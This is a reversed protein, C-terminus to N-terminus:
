HELYESKTLHFVTHYLAKYWESALNLITRYHKPKLSPIDKKVKAEMAAAIIVTLGQKPISPIRGKGVGGKAGKADSQAKAQKAKATDSDPPVSAPRKRGGIATKTDTSGAQRNLKAQNVDKQSPPFVATLTPNVSQGVDLWHDVKDTAVRLTREERAQCTHWLKVETYYSFRQDNERPKDNSMDDDSPRYNPFDEGFQIAHYAKGEDTFSYRAHHLLAMGWFGREKANCSEWYCGMLNNKSPDLGIRGKKEKFAQIVAPVNPLEHPLFDEKYHEFINHKKVRNKLEGQSELDAAEKLLQEALFTPKPVIWREWEPFLRLAKFEVPSNGTKKKQLHDGKRYYAGAGRWAHKYVWIAESSFHVNSPTPKCHKYMKPHCCNPLVQKDRQQTPVVPDDSRAVVIKDLPNLVKFHSACARGPGVAYTCRYHAWSNCWACPILEDADTDPCMRCCDEDGPTLTRYGHDQKCPEWFEPEQAPTKWLRVEGFKNPSVQVTRPLIDKSTIWSVKELPPFRVRERYMLRWMIVLHAPKKYLRFEEYDKDKWTLPVMNPGQPDLKSNKDERSQTDDRDSKKSKGRGKGRGKGKPKSASRPTGSGSRSRGRGKDKGRGKGKGKTQANPGFRASRVISDWGPFKNSGIPPLMVKGYVMITCGKFECYMMDPHIGTTDCVRQARLDKHKSPEYAPLSMLIQAGDTSETPVRYAHFVELSPLYCLGRNCPSQEALSKAVEWRLTPLSRVDLARGKHDFAGLVSNIPVGSTIILGNASNLIIMGFQQAPQVKIRLALVQDTKPFVDPASYACPYRDLPMLFNESGEFKYATKDQAAFAEVIETYSFLATIFPKDKYLLGDHQFPIYKGESGHQHLDGYFHVARM